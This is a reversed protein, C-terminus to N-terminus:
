EETVAATQKADSSKRIKIGIFAGAGGVGVLFLAILVYQLICLIFDMM